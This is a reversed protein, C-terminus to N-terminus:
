EKPHNRYYELTRRIGAAHPTVEGGFAREFKSSDMVFPKEFQYFVELAERIQRNFLGALLMMPRGIVGMKVPSDLAEGVMEIFQRGTLPEGPPLHWVEGLAEDREGLTVLGKAVNDLYSMTHPADLSGLWSARKGLLAPKVALEVAMSNANPGYFDSARGIAVRARGSRHADLFLKELEVRLRGKRGRANRPTEETMSGDPEGYMYLNDVVVLKAGASAAAVVVNQATPLLLRPWETYPVNVCHYVVGAGACVDRASDPDTMDGKVVQAGEPVEGGGSRSVARVRAGRGVLERVVAGGAGGTAGLVVHLESM